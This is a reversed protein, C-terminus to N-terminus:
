AASQIFEGAQMGVWLVAKNHWGLLRLVGRVKRAGDGGGFVVM